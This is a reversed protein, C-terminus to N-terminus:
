DSFGEDTNRIKWDGAVHQWRHKDVPEIFVPRCHYMSLQAIEEFALIGLHYAAHRFAAGHGVFLKLTDVQCQAKLQRLSQELHGAVRRGADLLSEAGQLPLCYHSNSKWDAPPQLFRPDQAIVSEIQQVTLNAASGVSRESLDDYSEIQLDMPSGAALEDVILSATQWARLLRSSDIQPHLAWGHTICIERLETAGAIAQARGEPILPFPQLASPTDPLQQYDGHRILAAIVRAM